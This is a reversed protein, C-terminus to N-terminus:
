SGDAVETFDAIRRQDFTDSGKRLYIEAFPRRQSARVAGLRVLELTAVFLVVVEESDARAHLHRLLAMSGENAVTSYIEQMKDQVNFRLPIM